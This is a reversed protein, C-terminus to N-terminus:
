SVKEALQEKEKQLSELQTQLIIVDKGAFNNRLYVLADSPKEPEEYM